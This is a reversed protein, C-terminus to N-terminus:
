LVYDVHKWGWPGLEEHAYLRPYSSFFVCEPPALIFNLRGLSHPWVSPIFTEEVLWNVPDINLPFFFCTVLGESIRFFALQFVCMVTYCRLVLTLRGYM